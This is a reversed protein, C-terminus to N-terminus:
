KPLKILIAANASRDAEDLAEEAEMAAIALDQRSRTAEKNSSVRKKTSTQSQATYQEEQEILIDDLASLIQATDDALPTIERPTFLLETGHITVKLARGNRATIEHGNPRINGYEDKDPGQKAADADLARLFGYWQMRFSLAAGETAFTMGFPKPSKYGKAAIAHFTVPYGEIRKSLTM